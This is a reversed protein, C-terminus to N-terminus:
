SGAPAAIYTAVRSSTSAVAGVLAVGGTYTGVRQTQTRMSSATYTHTWVLQTQARM